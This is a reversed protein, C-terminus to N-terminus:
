VYVEDNKEYGAQIKYKSKMDEKPIERHSMVNSASGVGSIVYDRGDTLPPGVFGHKMTLSELQDSTLLDGRTYSLAPVAQLTPCDGTASKGIANFCCSAKITGYQANPELEIDCCFIEVSVWDGEDKIDFVTNPHIDIYQNKNAPFSTHLLLKHRPNTHRNDYLNVIISGGISPILPAYNLYISTLKVTKGFLTEKIKKFNSWKIRKPNVKQIVEKKLKLSFMKGDKLRKVSDDSGGFKVLEM